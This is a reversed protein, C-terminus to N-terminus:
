LNVSKHIELIQAIVRNINPNPYTFEWSKVEGMFKNIEVSVQVTVIEHYEIITLRHSFNDHFLNYQKRDASHNIVTYGRLVYEEMVETAKM